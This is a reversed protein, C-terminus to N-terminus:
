EEVDVGVHHFIVRAEVPGSVIKGHIVRLM